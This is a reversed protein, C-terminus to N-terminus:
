LLKAHKMLKQTWQVFTDDDKDEGSFKPLAPLRLIRSVNDEVNETKDPLDIAKEHLM